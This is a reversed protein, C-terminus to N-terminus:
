QVIITPDFSGTISIYVANPVVTVDGLQTTGGIFPGTGTPNIIVFGLMALGIVPTPFKVAALTAGPTGAATYFAGNQDVSFTFVGFQGNAVSGVLAPMNTAAPVNVLVGNACAYTASAGTKVLTTTGSIVLGASTLCMSSDLNSGATVIPFLARRDMESAMGSLNRVVTDQM